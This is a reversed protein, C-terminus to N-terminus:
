KSVPESLVQKVFGVKDGDISLFAKPGPVPIKIEVCLPFAEAM